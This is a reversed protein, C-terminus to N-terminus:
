ANTRKRLREIQRHVYDYRLKRPRDFDEWHDQQWKYSLQPMGLYALIKTWWPAAAARRDCRDNFKNIGEKVWNLAPNESKSWDGDGFSGM